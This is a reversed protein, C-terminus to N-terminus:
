SRLPAQTVMRPHSGALAQAEGYSGIPAVVGWGGILDLGPPTVSREQSIRASFGSPEIGARLPAHLFGGLRSKSIFSSPV